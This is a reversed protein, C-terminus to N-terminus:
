PESEDSPKPERVWPDSPTERSACWGRPLDHLQNISADKDVIHHFCVLAASESKSESPGHFQWAGDDSDHSVYIIPEEGDKIRNTTYVGTHLPESFKWDYLSSDPNHSAWFDKELATLSPASFLLAQRTRWSVDFSDEWPFRNELDPYICQFVPFTDAGYFWSAYGVVARLEPREEVKRFECEVNELLERQRLGDQIQLGDKLRHAIENLLHQATDTKLGIAIIEPQHFMEYLGITYSWGPLDGEERVHIIHCGYKEVDDVLKKEDAKLVKQRHTDIRTKQSKAVIPGKV